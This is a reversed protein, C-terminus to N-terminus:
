IDPTNVNMIIYLDLIKGNIFLIRFEDPIKVFVWATLDRYQIDRIESIKTIILRPNKEHVYIIPQHNKTIIVTKNHM